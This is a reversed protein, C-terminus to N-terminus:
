YRCMFYMMFQGIRLYNSNQYAQTGIKETIKLHDLLDEKTAKCSCKQFKLNKTSLLILDGVRTNWLDTIAHNYYRQQTQLQVTIFKEQGTEM